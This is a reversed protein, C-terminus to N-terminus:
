CIVQSSSRPCSFLNCNSGSKRRKKRRKKEVSNGLYILWLNNEKKLSNCILFVWKLFLYWTKLQIIIFVCNWFGVTNSCIKSCQKDITSESFKKESSCFSLLLVIMDCLCIFRIIQNLWDSFLGANLHLVYFKICNGNWVFCLM